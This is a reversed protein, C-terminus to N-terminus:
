FRAEAPTQLKCDSESSDAIASDALTLASRFNIQM